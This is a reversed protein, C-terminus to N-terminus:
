IQCGPSGESGDRDLPRRAIRWPQRTLVVADVEAAGGEDLLVRACENVTAGSTMVDDIVLVRAGRIMRTPFALTISGRVSCWRRWESQARRAPQPRTQALLPPALDDVAIRPWVAPRADLYIATLPHAPRGRLSGRHFPVPLVVDYTRPAAAALLWGALLRALATIAWAELRKAALILWETDGRKYGLVIDTRRV